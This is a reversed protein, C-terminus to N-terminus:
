KMPPGFWGALRFTYLATWFFVSGFGVMDSPLPNSYPVMCAVLCLILGVYGGKRGKFVAIASIFDIVFAVCTRAIDFDSFVIGEKKMMDAVQQPRATLLYSTAAVVLFSLFANGFGFLRDFWWVKTQKTVSKRKAPM